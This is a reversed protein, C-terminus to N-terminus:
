NQNKTIKGHVTHTDFDGGEGGKWTGKERGDEPGAEMDVLAM